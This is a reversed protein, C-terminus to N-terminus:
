PLLVTAQLELHVLHVGPSQAETPGSHGPGLSVEIPHQLLEHQLILPEPLFHPLQLTAPVKGPSLLTDEGLLDLLQLPAEERCAGKRLGARAWSAGARQHWSGGTPYQWGEAGAAMETRQTSHRKGVPGAWPPVAVWWLHRFRLGWTARAQRHPGWGPCGWAARARGLAWLLPAVTVPGLSTDQCLHHCPLLHYGRCRGKGRSEWICCWHWSSFGLEWAQSLPQLSERVM